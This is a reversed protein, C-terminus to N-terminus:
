QANSQSVRVQILFTQRMCPFPLIRVVFLCNAQGVGPYSSAHYADHYPERRLLTIPQSWRTLPPEGDGDTGGDSPDGELKLRCAAVAAECAYEGIQNGDRQM